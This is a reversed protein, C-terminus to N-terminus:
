VEMGAERAKRKIFSLVKKAAAISKPTNIDTACCDIWHVYRDGCCSFGKSSKDLLPCGKCNDPFIWCMECTFDHKAEGSCFYEWRKIVKKFAAHLERKTM